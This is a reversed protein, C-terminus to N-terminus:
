ESIRRPKVIVAIAKGYARSFSAVPQKITRRLTTPDPVNIPPPALTTLSHISTEIGQLSDYCASALLVLESNVQKTSAIETPAPSAKRVPTTPVTRWALLLTVSAAIALGIQWWRGALLEQQPPNRAPSAQPDHRTAISSEAIAWDPAEERLRTAIAAFEQENRQWDPNRRVASPLWNPRRAETWYGVCHRVFWRYFRNM